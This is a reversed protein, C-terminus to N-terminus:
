GNREPPATREVQWQAWVRILTVTWLGGAAPVAVQAIYRTSTPLLTAGAPDVDHATVNRVDTWHYVEVASVTFFPRIGAWWQEQPLDTRAFAAMFAGARRVAETAATPDPTAPGAPPQSPLYDTAGQDVAGAASPPSSAASHAAAPPRPATTDRGGGCAGVSVALLAGLGVGALRCGAQFGQQGAPPQTSPAEERM